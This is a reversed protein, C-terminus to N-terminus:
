NERLKYVSVTKGTFECKVKGIVEVDGSICLETLRPSSNNRDNSTTYGKKFM